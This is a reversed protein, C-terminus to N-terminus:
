VVPYRHAQMSEGIPSQDATGTIISKRDRDYRFKRRLEVQPEDKTIEFDHDDGDKLIRALAL